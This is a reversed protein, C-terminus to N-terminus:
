SNNQIFLQNLFLKTFNEPFFMGRFSKILTKTKLDAVENSFLM